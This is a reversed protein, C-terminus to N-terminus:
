VSIDENIKFTGYLWTQSEESNATSIAEIDYVYLGAAVSKMKTNPVNFIVKGLSTTYAIKKNGNADDKTSLIIEASTDGAGSNPSDYDTNAYDYARVEMNFNYAGQAVQTGDAAKLDIELKFTDGKRCIIDVRKAVDLNVVNSM